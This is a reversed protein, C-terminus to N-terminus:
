LVNTFPSVSVAFVFGGNPVGLFPERDPDVRPAGATQRGEGALPRTAQNRVPLPQPVVDGSVANAFHPNVSAWPIAAHKAKFAADNRMTIQASIDSCTFCMGVVRAPLMRSSVPM